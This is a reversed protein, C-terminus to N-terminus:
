THVIIASATSTAIQTTESVYNGSYFYWIFLISAILFYSFSGLKFLIHIPLYIFLSFFINLLHFIIAFLINLTTEPNKWNEVNSNIIGQNDKHKKKLNGKSHSHQNHKHKHNHNHNHKHHTGFNSSQSRQLNSSNSIFIQDNNKSDFKNFRTSNLNNSHNNHNNYEHDLTLIGLNNLSIASQTQRNKYFSNSIKSNDNILNNSTNNHINYPPIFSSDNDIILSNPRSNFSSYLSSDSLIRKSNPRAKSLQFSGIDFSKRNSKQNLNLSSSSLSSDLHIPSANRKPIKILTGLNDISRRSHNSNTNKYFLSKNNDKEKNLNQYSKSNNNSLYIPSNFIFDDRDSPSLDFSVSHDNRPTSSNYPPSYFDNFESIKVNSLSSRLNTYSHNNSNNYNDDDFINNSSNNNLNSTKEHKSLKRKLKQSKKRILTIPGVM